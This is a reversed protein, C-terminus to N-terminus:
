DNGNKSKEYEQIRKNMIFEITARDDDSLIDKTKNYLVDLISTSTNNKSLDTGTLDSISVKFFNAVDYANDVTVGMDESEWRSITSQNVKIKDALEQRSIGKKERLYRLNNSFYSM